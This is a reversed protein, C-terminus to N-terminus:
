AIRQRRLPPIFFKAVKKEANTLSKVSPKAQADKYSVVKQAKAANVAATEAAM